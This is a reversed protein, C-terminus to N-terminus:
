TVHRKSIQASRGIFYSWETPSAHAHITFTVQESHKNQFTQFCLERTRALKMTSLFSRRIQDNISPEKALEVPEKTVPVQLPTAESEKNPSPISKSQPSAESPLPSPELSSMTIYALLKKGGGDWLMFRRTVEGIQAEPLSPLEELVAPIM